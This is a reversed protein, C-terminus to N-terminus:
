DNDTVFVLKELWPLFALMLASKVWKKYQDSDPDMGLSAAQCERSGLFNIVLNHFCQLFATIEEPDGKLPLKERLTDATMQIHKIIYDSRISESGRKGIQVMNLIVIQVPEPRTFGYDLLRDLYTSLGDRPHVVSLGELWKLHQSQFEEHVVASAAMLLNMKTGFYYHILPHDVGAEKAIMRTSASQYPLQAFTKVAADLIRQKASKDNNNNGSDENSM